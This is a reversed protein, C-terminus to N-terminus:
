RGGGAPPIVITGGKETEIIGSRRSPAQQQEGPAQQGLPAAPARQDGSPRLGRALEEMRAEESRRSQALEEADGGDGAVMASTGGPWALVILALLVALQRNRM